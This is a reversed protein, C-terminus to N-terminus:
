NTIGGCYLEMKNNPNKQYFAKDLRLKGKEDMYTPIRSIDCKGYIHVGGGSVSYETYSDFRELLTQVLPDIKKM